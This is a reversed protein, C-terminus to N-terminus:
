GAKEIYGLVLRDETSLTALKAAMDDAVLKYSTSTGSSFVKVRHAQLLANLAHMLDESSLGTGAQLLQQSVPDAKQTLFSVVADVRDPRDAAGGVDDRRRKSM